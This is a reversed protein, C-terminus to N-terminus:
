PPETSGAGGIARGGTWDGGLGALIATTKPAPEEFPNRM